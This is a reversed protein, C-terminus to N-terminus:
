AGTRRHRGVRGALEAVDYAAAATVREVPWGAAALAADVFRDREARDARGHSRDDLEVMLFPVVGAGQCLVFDVHKGTVRNHWHHWRESGAAVEVLDALRVKTFVTVDPGVARLLAGYFAREGQSMLEVRRRYPLVGPGGAAVPGDGKGRTIGQRIFGAM